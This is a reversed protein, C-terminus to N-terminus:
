ARRGLAERARLPLRRLSQQERLYSVAAEDNCRPERRIAASLYGGLLAVAALEKRAKFLSRLLLYTPRYGSYHASRGVEFLRRWRSEDRLGVNRHHYFVLTPITASRWGKSAARLEDIGDWGPRLELPMVDSLCERRYARTAGRVRNGTAHRVRWEGDELELCTGGAIGLRPDAQFERALGEFYKGDASVDADVKVVLDVPRPIVEIGATFAAAVPGGRTATSEGPVRLVRIWREDARLEDAVDATEDTSGNDVIVWVTPPLTQARLTAALRPLNDAENRAPTVVAYTLAGTPM